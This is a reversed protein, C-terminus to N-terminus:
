FSGEEMIGGENSIDISWALMYKEHLKVDVIKVLKSKKNSNPLLEMELDESVYPTNDENYHYIESRLDIINLTEPAIIELELKNISEDKIPISMYQNEKVNSDSIKRITHITYVKGKVTDKELRVTYNTTDGENYVDVIKQKKRKDNIDISVNGGANWTYRGTVYRVGSIKAKLKIIKDYKITTLDIYEFTHKQDIVEFQTEMLDTHTKKNANIKKLLHTDIDKELRAYADIDSSNEFDTYLASKGLKASINEKFKLVRAIEEAIGNTSPAGPKKFYLCAQKGAAIHKKIEEQTYSLDTDTIRGLKQWFIGIVMDSKQLLSTDIISQPESAIGRPADIEWTLGRLIVHTEDTNNSNWKEIADLFIKREEVVDGPSAIMINCITANEIM